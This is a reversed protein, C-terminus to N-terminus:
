CVCSKCYQAPPDEYYFLTVATRLTLQQLNPPISFLEPLPSININGTRFTHHSYYPTESLDVDLKSLTPACVGLLESLTLVSSLAFKLSRVENIRPKIWALLSSSIVYSSTMTLAKLQPLTSDCTRGEAEFSGTLSLNEINKCNDLLSIPFGKEGVLHVKKVTPLNLRDKLAARFAASWYFQEKSASLMICELVPFALLTNALEDLREVVAREVRRPSLSSIEFHIELIKVYHLIRTNESVLKSLRNSNSKGHGVHVIIHHYLHREVIPSLTPDASCAILTDRHSVLFSFIHDLIEVSLKM